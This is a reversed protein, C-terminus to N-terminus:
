RGRLRQWPHHHIIHIMLQDLGIPPGGDHSLFLSDSLSLFIVVVVVPISSSTAIAVSFSFTSDEMGRGEGVVETMRMPPLSYNGVVFPPLPQPAHPSTSM